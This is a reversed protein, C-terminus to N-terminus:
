KHIRLKNQIIKGIKLMEKETFFDSKTYNCRFCCLVINDITYGKSNDIRDISLRRVRRNLSDETDALIEDLIRKCYHCKKEQNDYWFMFETKEM